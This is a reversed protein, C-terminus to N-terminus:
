QVLLNCGRIDSGAIRGEVEFSGDAFVRGADETQIFACSWWNALDIINLGGRTGAPLLAFPDNIDRAVVRMWAPCRFRNGGASYAQSTLEAMGYESHIERVGFANCLIKHFESKAIEERHGKMGGTEMVVTDRLRPAYREALEWLAYSVGLLIKPKPDKGMVDILEEYNNLFFGGSGCDAILRDAMYVLSSGKRQLYNPLLAYLSWRSPDGYFTRFAGRFAQEYLALSRMPHRSSTMGTTASSTFVAEPETDGCYVDRTKFLQIPLFPINDFRTIHEPAIDLLALYERYPPCEAAQRRFVELAAAEFAEDTDIRFIDDPTLM